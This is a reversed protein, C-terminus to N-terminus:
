NNLEVTFFPLSFVWNKHPVLPFLKIISFVPNCKWGIISPLYLFCAAHKHDESDELKHVPLIELRKRSFFKPLFFIRSQRNKLVARLMNLVDSVAWIACEQAVFLIFSATVLVIWQESPLYGADDYSGGHPSLYSTYKFKLKNGKQKSFEHLNLKKM